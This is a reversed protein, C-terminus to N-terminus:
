EVEEGETDVASQDLLMEIKAEVLEDPVKIGTRDFMIQEAVQFYTIARMATLALDCAQANLAKLEELSDSKDSDDQIKMVIDLAEPTNM